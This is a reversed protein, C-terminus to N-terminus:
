GKTKYMARRQENLARRQEAAEKKSMKKDGGNKINIVKILTLLQNIHWKEFEVPVRLSVMWYYIIEATIKERSSRQAGVMNNNSFWTATMPDKIYEVVKEINDNTLCRFVNPDVKKDLSMCYIYDIIEPITKNEEGLFPKHWMSEWKRVAILSHELRLVTDKVDVFEEKVEDYLHQEPVVIELM